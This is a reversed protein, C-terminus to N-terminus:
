KGGPGYGAKPTGDDNIKDCAWLLGRTVLDLYRADAVTENNHGLTTSFVRTKGNYTNTWVDVWDDTRDEIKETGDAQKKKAHVTQVGHALPHATDFIKINNYHEEKITTWDSLGKTVPHNKDLFSVAIPEQADHRSSQLGLYEFWLSHPTGLTTTAESPNGIRYCHMACHLNVGPVGDRHPKLVGEITAPDSVAASCEDHIVVDFGKAYDPNGYIPLPPATSKDDTHIQTVVVNAREELGRKLIDKQQAYDHCCGGTVLLVKIPDAARSAPALALATACIVPLLLTKM